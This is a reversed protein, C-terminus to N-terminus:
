IATIQYELKQILDGFGKLLILTGGFAREWASRTWSRFKHGIFHM